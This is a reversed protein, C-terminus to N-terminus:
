TRMASALLHPTLDAILAARRGDPDLADMRELVATCLARLEDDAPYLEWAISPMELGRVRADPFGASALEERLEAATHFHGGPFGEGPNTWDGGRLVAVEEDTTDTGGHGLIGDLFNNVRSIASVLLLGGPRLVRRAETLATLRDAPSSLHYLPGFMLVTDFSADDQGLARADGRMATFTGERAAIEVQEPVPDLMTVEHGREALWAAHVGTGGGVDLIRSPAPLAALEARIREGEIQGGVSRTTLRAAEAGGAYYHQIKEDLAAHPPPPTLDTMAVDYLLGSVRRGGAM